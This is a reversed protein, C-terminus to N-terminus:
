SAATDLRGTTGTARGSASKRSRFLGFKIGADRTAHATESFVTVCRLRGTRSPPCWKPSARRHRPGTETLSDAILQWTVRAFSVDVTEDVRSEGASSSALRIVCPTPNNRLRTPTATI